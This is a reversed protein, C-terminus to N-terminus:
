VAAPARMRTFRALEKGDAGLLHLQNTNSDLRYARAAELAALFRTEQEMVGPDLCAMQTSGVNAFRLTAGSLMLGAFYRNCGTSGSVRTESEFMLTSRAGDVVGRGGIEAAQWSSGILSSADLLSEAPAPAAVRATPGASTAPATSQPTRCGSGLAALCSLLVLARM